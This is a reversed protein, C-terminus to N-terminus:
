RGNAHRAEERAIAKERGEDSIPLPSMSMKGALTTVLICGLEILAQSRAGLECCAVLLDFHASLVGLIGGAMVLWWVRSDRTM